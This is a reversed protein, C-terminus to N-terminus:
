YVFRPPVFEHERSELKPSAMKQQAVERLHRAQEATPGEKELKLYADVDELLAVYNATRVHIDALLAYAEAADPKRLLAERAQREAEDLQNEGFLAQGLLLPGKWSSTDREMGRRAVREAAAFDHRQCLLTALAFQPAAERGSSLDIAKQLAAEAEDLRRLQMNTLGIQLYAQYYDPYVATAKQFEELGGTPDQKALRELGKEYFRRAKEPVMLDRVSVIAGGSASPHPAANSKKLYLVVDWTPTTEDVRQEVPEYGPAEASIVYGREGGGPATFHGSEDTYTTTLARGSLGRIQVKVIGASSNDDKLVSGSIFTPLRTPQPNSPESRRLQARSPVLCICTLLTLTLSAKLAQADTFLRKSHHFFMVLGEARWPWSRKVM